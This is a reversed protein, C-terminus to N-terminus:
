RLNREAEEVLPRSWAQGSYLEVIGRWIAQAQEPHTSRIRQAYALRGKILQHLEKASEDIQPLLEELRQRALDVAQQDRPSLGPDGGFVDLIAQWKAAAVHPNSEESDLAEVLAMEIATLPRTSGKHRSRLVLQRRLQITEIERHIKEVEELREDEPFREIFEAIESEIQTMETESDSSAATVIREYLGDATRPRLILYAGVAISAIFAALSAYKIIHERLSEAEDGADRLRRRYSEDVSTYSAQDPLLRAAPAAEPSVADPRSDHVSAPIETELEQPSRPLVKDGLMARTPQDGSTTAWAPPEEPDDRLVLDTDDEDDPRKAAISMEDRIAQLRKSVALATPVRQTPDKRLLQDLLQELGTPVDTAFRSIPVPLEYRVKHIVEPLSKGIFPPRGALMAFLVAGLSYLDCRTTAKQGEAQEPAMYDATGLVGGDATQQSTGFLKAIGFDTLKVHDDPSVLLNAPKIDRHIVGHDHAHKLAACIDIGVTVVERWQFRRGASIEQQLTTGSVLEMAYFLYGQEEGFGYLEVINPHSLKMLSEVEAEFRARFNADSTLNPSLVKLAVRRGSSVDEGIFVTGMGGKGIAKGIKYPGLQQVRM